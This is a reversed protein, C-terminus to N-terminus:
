QDSTWDKFGVVILRMQRRTQERIEELLDPRRPPMEVLTEATGVMNTVFLNAVMAVDRPSWTEVYPFHALDLALESAFAALQERIATRIAPTGGFRERAIFAFRGPHEQVVRVIIDASATIVDDYTSPDRRADRLMQRMTVFSAGVLALGLEEMSAFHRYFATPVIGSERSVQRLSIAAFGREQTLTLAADLIAQRTREKQEQRTQM